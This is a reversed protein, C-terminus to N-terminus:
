VWKSCLAFGVESTMQQLAANKFVTDPNSAYDEVFGSSSAIDLGESGLVDVYQPGTRDSFYNEPTNIGSGQLVTPGNHTQGLSGDIKQEQLGNIRMLGHSWILGGDGTLGNIGPLGTVGPLRDSWFGDVIPHRNIGQLTNVQSFGDPEKTGNIWILGHNSGLGDIHKIENTQTLGHLRDMLGSTGSVEDEDMVGTHSQFEQGLQISDDRFRDYGTQSEDRLRELESWTQDSDLPESPSWHDESLVEEISSLVRPQHEEISSLVRPQHEEISSLVCPQPEEISSLVRPQHEEISSLVHLQGENTEPKISFHNGVLHGSNSHSKPQNLISLDSDSHQHVNSASQKAGLHRQFYNPREDNAQRVKSDNNEQNLEQDQAMASGPDGDNQQTLSAGMNGAYRDTRMFFGNRIERSEMAKIISWLRQKGYFKFM